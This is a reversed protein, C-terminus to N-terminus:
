PCKDSGQAGLVVFDDLYHFVHCIGDARLCWELVDAVANFNKLALRLGFPLMPDIFIQDRWKVGLLFRNEPHVLILRYASEIDIKAMLTYPDPQAAVM